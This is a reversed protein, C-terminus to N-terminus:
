IHGLYNAFNYITLHLKFENMFDGDYMSTEQVKKVEALASYLV